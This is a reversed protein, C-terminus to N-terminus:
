KNNIKNAVYEYLKAFTTLQNEDEEEIKINFHDNVEMMIEITDLSDIGAAKWNKANRIVEPSTASLKCILDLLEKELDM